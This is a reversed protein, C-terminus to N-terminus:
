DKTHVHLCTAHEEFAQSWKLASQQLPTPLQEAKRYYNIPIVHQLQKSVPGGVMVLRPPTVFVNHYPLRQRYRARSTPSGCRYNNGPVLVVRHLDSNLQSELLTGPDKIGVSYYYIKNFLM